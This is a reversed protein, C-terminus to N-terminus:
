PLDMTIGLHIGADQLNWDDSDYDVDKVQYGWYVNTRIRKTLALRAGLGVGVLTSPSGRPHNDNWSYGADVFPALELRPAGDPRLWVPVRVEVSGILGNDRVLTNERYGRVTDNGGIAFQELGLLPSSSLQVDGRLLIQSELLSPFRWAGQLQGLWAVFRGDPVDGNHETADLIPLGWTLMSRMAFVRNPSRYAGEQGFRLVSLKAVGNEPGQGFSFLDGLLYAKSERWEGTLFVALNTSSSRVIPQRLTFGYTQTRSEIDLSEFPNEVVDAWTRQLHLELSTDRATLPVEYRAWVERLGETMKYAARLSDGFGTLNRYAVDFFGGSSGIAPSEYNNSGLQIRWPNAEAVRVALRSEGRARGPVLAADVTRIRDDSQLLQLQEELRYVNVPRSAALQVRKRLYRDRFRGDTEIDIGAIEGEIIQVRLVGDALSQTPIVAGSTLYGRRVYALTLADRLEELDEFSLERGVYPETVEALTDDPLATNGTVLIERVHARAGGSLGRTDPKSPLELPPLVHGPERAKPEFSPLQLPEDGPRVRQGAASTSLALSVV